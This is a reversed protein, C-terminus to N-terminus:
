GCSPIWLAVEPPKGSAIWPYRDQLEALRNELYHVRMQMVPHEPDGRLAAEADRLLIRLEHYEREVHQYDRHFTALRDLLWDVDSFDVPITM